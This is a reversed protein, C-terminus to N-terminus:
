RKLEAKPKTFVLKPKSMSPVAYSSGYCSCKKCVCELTKDNEYSTDCHGCTACKDYCYDHDPCKKM